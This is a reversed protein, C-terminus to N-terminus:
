NKENSGIGKLEEMAYKFIKVFLPVLEKVKTRRMEEDSLGDFVEKLFPKLTGIGSTILDIAADDSLSGLKVGDLLGLIDEITGFMLDFTDTVYTKEIEKGKYINLKLEAM